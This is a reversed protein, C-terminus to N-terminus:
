QYVVPYREKLQEFYADMSAREREAQLDAAVKQRVYALPTEEAEALRELRVVHFGFSSAVPGVWNGAELMPLGDVFKPGLASMIERESKAVYSGQLLTSDGLKRWDEGAELAALIASLNSEDKFYVQSFTYREPLTYASINDRYHAEIDEDTLVENSVDQYLFGLKQVLRRRIITDDDDLGLRMAERYFVEERVWADLLSALETESPARGMQLEWLGSIHGRITDDVVVTDSPSERLSDAAFLLAGIVLFWVLPERASIM